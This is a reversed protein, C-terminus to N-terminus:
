MPGGGEGIRSACRSGPGPKFNVNKRMPVLFFAWRVIVAGQLARREASSEEWDSLLLPFLSSSLLSAFSSDSIPTSSGKQSLQSGM